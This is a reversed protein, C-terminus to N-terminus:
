IRRTTDGTGINVDAVSFYHSQQLNIRMARSTMGRGLPARHNVMKTSSPLHTTHEFQGQKNSVKVTFPGDAIASVYLSRTRQKLDSNGIDYLDWEVDALVDAGNDDAGDSLQYLGDAGAAYIEGDVEVMSNFPLGEWTAGAAGMTNLWFVPYASPAPFSFADEVFGSSELIVVQRGHVVAAVAAAGVAAGVANFVATAIGAVVGAGAAAGVTPLASRGVGASSSSGAAAGTTVLPGLGVGAVDAAGAARAVAKTYRDGILVDTIAGTSVATARIALPLAEVAAGTSELVEQLLAVAGATSAGDAAGVSRRKELLDLTDSAVGSSAYVAAQVSADATANGTATLTMGHVAVATDTEDALSEWSIAGVAAGAAVGAALGRGGWLLTSIAAATGTGAAAVALVSPNGLATSSGASSGVAVSHAAVATSSGVAAGVGAPVGIAATGSLGAALAVAGVTRQGVAAPASSGAAAGAAQLAQRGVVTGGATGVASGAGVKAKVGVAAAAALGISSFVSAM